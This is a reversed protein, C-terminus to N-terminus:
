LLFSLVAYNIFFLFENRITRPTPFGLTLSGPDPLLRRSIDDWMLFAFPLLICMAPAPAPHSWDRKKRVRKKEKKRGEKREKKKKREEKRERIVEEYLM